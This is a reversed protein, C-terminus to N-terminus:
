IFRAIMWLAVGLIVFMAQFPVAYVMERRVGSLSTYTSSGTFNMVIFSSVASMILAWGAREILNVGGLGAVLSLLFLLAGLVFGKLAFARGPLWPLLMPGLVNAGLYAIVLNALARPGASLLSRMSYGGRDIGSLALFVALMPVLYRSWQVVDNPALALRDAISFTVRRMERTAVMGADLFAMIDASRVPGFNVKFGSLRRVEHAAVGTASLQPLILDRHDVIKELRTESVRRVVEDTGFTGKGAACWVNIGKTDVVMIYADLGELERRLYDFTLKYNATVLM